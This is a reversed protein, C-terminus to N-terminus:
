QRPLHRGAVKSREDTPARLGPRRASRQPLPAAPVERQYGTGRDAKNGQTPDGGDLAMGAPILTRIAKLGGKILPTAKPSVRVRLRNRIPRQNKAM